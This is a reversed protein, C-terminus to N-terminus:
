EYKKLHLTLWKKIINKEFDLDSHYLKILDDYLKQKQSDILNLHQELLDKRKPIIWKYFNPIRLKKILIIVKYMQKKQLYDHMIQRPRDLAVYKPDFGKGFWRNSYELSYNTEVELFDFVRKLLDKPNAVIKDYYEILIQNKSFTKLLFDLYQFYCSREFIDFDLDEIIADNDFYKKRSIMRFHSISRSIPERLLVIIKVNPYDKKLRELASKSYLYNASFEGKIGDRKGWNNAYWKVGKEYNNSFYCPEKNLSVNIEPHGRLLESLWTTGCKTGGICAFNLDMDISM